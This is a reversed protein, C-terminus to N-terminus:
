QINTYQVSPKKKATGSAAAKKDPVTDDVIIRRPMDGDGGIITSSGGSSPAYAPYAVAGVSGGDTQATQAKIVASINRRLRTLNTFDSALHAYEENKNGFQEATTVLSDLTECVLSLDEYVKFTASINRSALADKILDPLAGHLNRQLSAAAQEARQKHQSSVTFGTKWGGKWKEIHLHNIDAATAASTRDLDLLMSTLDQRVPTASATQRRQAALTCSFLLLAISAALLPKM